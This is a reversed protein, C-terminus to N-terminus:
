TICIDRIAVILNDISCALDWFVIKPKNVLRIVICLDHMKSGRNQSLFTVINMSMVISLAGINTFHLFYPHFIDPFRRM